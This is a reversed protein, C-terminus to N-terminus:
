NVSKTSSMGGSSQKAMLGYCLSFFLLFAAFFGISTLGPVWPLLISSGNLRRVPPVVMLYREIWNGILILVLITRLGVEKRLGLLISAFPLLFLFGFMLITLGSYEGFYRMYFPGTEEPVNAYWIIIFQSVWLYAWVSSFVLLLKRFSLWTVTDIVKSKVAFLILMMLALGAYLDGFWFYPAFLTNHWNPSLYMGLDWSVITQNVVFLLLLILLLPVNKKRDKMYRAITRCVLGYFLVLCLLNRAFFFPTNLWLSHSESRWYFLADQGGLLGILALIALPSFSLTLVGAPVLITMPWDGGLLWLLIIMAFLGQTIGLLYIYNVLYFDWPVGTFFWSILTFIM